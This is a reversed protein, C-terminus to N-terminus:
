SSLLWRFIHDKEVDIVVFDAPLMLKYVKVVVDEVLGCLEKVSKDALQLMVQTPKIETLGLSMYVFKPMVNVNAGLDCLAEGVFHDGISCPFTFKGPDELKQPLKRPMVELCDDTVTVNKIDAIRINTSLNKVDDFVKKNQSDVNLQM